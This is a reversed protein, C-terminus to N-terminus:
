AESHVTLYVMQLDHSAEDMSSRNIEHLGEKLDSDAYLMVQYDSPLNSLDKILESVTM